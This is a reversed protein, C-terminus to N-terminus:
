HSAKVEYSVHRDSPRYVYPNSCAESHRDNGSGYHEERIGADM